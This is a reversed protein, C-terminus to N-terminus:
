PKNDGLCPSMFKSQADPLTRTFRTALVAGGSFAKGGEFLSGDLRMLFYRRGLKNPVLSVSVGEGVFISITGIIKKYILQRKTRLSAEKQSDPDDTCRYM